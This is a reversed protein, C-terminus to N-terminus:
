AARASSPHSRRPKNKEFNNSGMLESVPVGMVQALKKLDDLTARRKGTLKHSLWGQTVGLSEAFSEQSIKNAKLYARVKSEWM